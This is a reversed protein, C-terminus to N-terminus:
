CEEFSEGACQCEICFTQRLNVFAAQIRRLVGSIPTRFGDLQEGPAGRHEQRRPLFSDFRMAASFM